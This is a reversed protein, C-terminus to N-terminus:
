TEICCQSNIDEAESIHFLSEQSFHHPMEGTIDAPVCEFDNGSLDLKKLRTLTNPIFPAIADGALELKLLVLETLCTLHCLLDAEPHFEGEEIWLHQELYEHVHGTCTFKVHVKPRLSGLCGLLATCLEHMFCAEEAYCDCVVMVSRMGSSRAKFWRSISEHFELRLDPAGTPEKLDQQEFFARGVTVTDWLMDNDKPHKLAVRWGQCVKECHRKDTQSLLKFIASKLEYPLQSLSVAM